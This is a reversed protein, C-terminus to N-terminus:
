GNEEEPNELNYAKLLTMLKKLIRLRDPGAMMKLRKFQSLVQRLGDEGRMVSALLSPDAKNLIKKAGESGREAAYILWLESEIFDVSVGLGLGYCVSLCFQADAHDHEAAKRFYEVAKNWDQVVGGTGASYHMGILYQAEPDHDADPILEAVTKDSYM